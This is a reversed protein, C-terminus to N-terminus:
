EALVKEVLDPYGRIVARIYYRDIAFLLAQEEVIATSCYHKGRLFPAPELFGYLLKGPNVLQCCGHRELRVTGMVLQYLTIAPEGESFLIEKSNATRQKADLALNDQLKRLFNNTEQLRQSFQRCLISTLGPFGNIIVDIHEPKLCLTYSSGSSRVSACRHQSGLYAMEGVIAPNHLDCMITALIAPQAGFVCSNQEVALAGQLVLFVEVTRENERILYEGDEYVRPEIDAYERILRFLESSQELGIQELSFAQM